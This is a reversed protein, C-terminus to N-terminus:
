DQNPHHIMDKWANFDNFVDVNEIFQGRQRNLKNLLTIETKPETNRHSHAMAQMKKSDGFIEPRQYCSCLTTTLGGRGEGGHMM